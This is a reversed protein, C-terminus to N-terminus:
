DPLAENRPALATSGPGTLHWATLIRESQGTSLRTLWLGGDGPYLVYGCGESFKPIPLLRSGGSVRDFRVHVPARTPVEVAMTFDRWTIRADPCNTGSFARTVRPGGPRGDIGGVLSFYSVPERANDSVRVSAGGAIQGDGNGPRYTEALIRQEDNSWDIKGLTVGSDGALKRYTLTTTEFVYIDSVATSLAQDRPLDYNPARAVALRAGDRTVVPSSWHSALKPLIRLQSGDPAALAVNFDQDKLVLLSEDDPMDALMWRDAFLRELRRSALHYRALGGSGPTVFVRQEVESFPLKDVVTVPRLVAWTRERVAYM